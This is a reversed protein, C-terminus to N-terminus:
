AADMAREYRALADLFTRLRLRLSGRPRTEDLDHLALFPKGGRAAADAIAGYLSADQGCKFSSIEIAALYPHAAVMRAGVLKEGDGSNTLGPAAGTLDLEIPLGLAALTALDKPLSRISLTTRGLARLESGLDHHIGPDAHYPRGLVVIAVRRDDRARALARSGERELGREFARQGARAEVLAEDHEVLTLRPALRLMTRFLERRLLAPATLVLTPTLLLGGGPLAGSADAGFAARVVMPTGAVVPCSATDVCGSVATIAHTLVPFFLADFDRVDRRALLDAVHASAVKVPFCADVTGRGAARRWLEETTAPGIVLDKRAVGIAEFYHTFFPASRYMSLVRPIAIRLGIGARSVVRVPAARKFLRAAELRLLDRGLAAEAVDAPTGPPDDDLAGGRECAHGTVFRVSPGLPALAEVVTRSCESPCSRCRTESDSRASYRAALTREFGVFSTEGGTGRADCAERAVLAAGIAGAEGPWPHVVVRATPHRETLYEVQARNAARNQQVGGSLVFVRGLAALSPAAVVNEWINRPLVAAMGALIEAPTRGDRQLTIRETDLFVACGVALEPTRGATEAVDAYDEIRVGLERATAELLAGNGAACQNSLHFRAVGGQRLVLVKIDQGGVDCVVDADPVFRLASRAHAVTEVPSADAGFVPGLVDAAYGTVGLGRVLAVRDGLERAVEALMAQADELPGRESRRYIRVIPTDDADLVVAKITSSGADIGLVLTPDGARAPLRPPPEAGALAGPAGTERGRSAPEAREVSRAALAPGPRRPLAHLGSRLEAVRRAGSACRVAGEAAFHVADSPVCVDDAAGFPVGRERWRAALHRRWSTALAPAFAHPGGLLVVSPPLPRGHALVALNGRVIADLLAGLVLDRPVGAKVLNVLDTEAFVGCKASVVPLAEEPLRFSGLSGDGLGLRLLCRDLASGTGAACRENMDSFFAGDGSAGEGGPDLHIMKADQGGLEIVTRANPYRARAATAVAHVEHVFRAGLRGALASGASGTIWREPLVGVAGGAEGLLAEVVALCEGRHRRYTRFVVAGGRVVVVKASTSGVDIGVGDEIRDTVVDTSSLVIWV